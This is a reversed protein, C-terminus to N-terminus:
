CKPVDISTDEACAVTDGSSLNPLNLLDIKLLDCMSACPGEVNEEAHISSVSM